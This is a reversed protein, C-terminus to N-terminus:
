TLPGENLSQVEKLLLSLVNYDLHETGSQCNHEAHLENSTVAFGVGRIRWSSELGMLKRYVFTNAPVTAEPQYTDYKCPNIPHKPTM